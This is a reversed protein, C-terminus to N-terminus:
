AVPLIELSLVNTKCARIREVTEESPMNSLRIHAGAEEGGTYVVHDMEEVNVQDSALLQFVTALSGPKNVLRVVLLCATDAKSSNVCNLVEGSSKYEKIINIVEDAVANQAEETSAGIHHTGYLHPVDKLHSTFETGDAPPEEDYVDVAAGAINGERLAAALAQEDVVVSRSTNILFATPKMMALEEAGILKRTDPGGPVHITVFDSRRLLDEIHTRDCNPFDVLRHNRGLHTFLIKMDFGLARRAVETGIKGAGIIGVTRGKLGRARSYGKKDWKGSRLDIVNDPIRRDLSLILGMTLEAVAAANMGPCNAVLIGKEAAAVSDINDYGSGARIILKLRDGAGLLPEPVKTSRVVLVDPNFESLRQSLTAEKLSPDCEVESAMAKIQQLGEDQFKDAILVKM